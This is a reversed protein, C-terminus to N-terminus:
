INEGSAALGAARGTAAACQINFGGTLADVDLVEGAFYLNECRKSEMTKPNIEKLDVGGSTVVATSIDALGKIEFMLNKITFGLAFREDRTVSHCKVNSRIGSQRLVYPILAKPFLGHLINVLDKNAYEGFDGVIREDLTYPVLAPKLDVSLAAGKLRERNIRSSLRLVIPGSVGRDTFLMEGTESFSHGGAKVTVCVNRLSLGELPKVDDALEVAVLAPVTPVVTHGFAAAVAYGDGTSGTAPYSKGGTAVILRDFTLEGDNTGVVFMGNEKRVSLVRTNLRVTVNPKDAKQAFAKLVDSSKDSAPFVRNGRETKLRLGTSGVFEMLAAPPFASLSSMMFKEGRVIHPLFEYLACNNTLNCRGKGTIYLKKGLKENRELLTVEANECFAAATM